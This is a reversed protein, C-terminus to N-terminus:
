LSLQSVRFRAERTRRGCSSSENSRKVERAPPQRSHSTGEVRERCNVLLGSRWRLKSVFELKDSLSFSPRRLRVTATMKGPVKGRGRRAHINIAIETDNWMTDM